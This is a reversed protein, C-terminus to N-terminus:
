HARETHRVSGSSFCNPGMPDLQKELPDTGSNRRFCITVQSKGPPGPWVSPGSWRGGGKQIWGHQTPRHDTITANGKVRTM